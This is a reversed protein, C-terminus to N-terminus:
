RERVICAQGQAALRECLANAAARDLYGARARYYIGSAGLDARQIDATLGGLLDPYRSQLRAFTDRASQEDRLAALQVVFGGGSAAPAAPAAPSVTQPAPPTEVVAPAPESPALAPQQAAVGADGAPLPADLPSSEIAEAMRDLARQDEPRIAPAEIALPEEAPPLLQEGEESGARSDGAIRNYVGADQHPFKRGGPNEPPVKVPGGDARLLPPMGGAGDPSGERYALLMIGGFVVLLALVTLMMLTRRRGGGTDEDEDEYQEYDEVDPDFDYEPDEDWGDDRRPM